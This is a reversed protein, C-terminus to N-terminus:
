RLYPAASAAVSHSGCSHNSPLGIGDEAETHKACATWLAHSGNNGVQYSFTITLGFETASIRQSKIVHPDGAGLLMFKPPAPPTGAPGLNVAFYPYWQKSIETNLASAPVFVNVTATMQCVPGTCTTGNGSYVTTSTERAAVYITSTPSSALPTTATSTQFLEVKYRTVLIPTVQFAYEATTGAPHLVVSSVPAPASHYPFQQAYLRAVEGSTTGKIEGDVQASADKGGDYVVYVDGSIPPSDSKVAILFSGPGHSGTSALIVAAVIGAAALFVVALTVVIPPRVRRRRVLRRIRTAPRRGPQPLGTGLADGAGTRAATETGAAAAAPTGPGPHSPPSHGAHATVRHITETIRDRFEAAFLIPILAPVYPGALERRKNSCTRCDDCIKCNDFHRVIRQRLETTFTETGVAAAQASDLIRALGPCYTRGEQLLILAGFGYAILSQVQTIENSAAKDAIGLREAVQRGRLEQVFRLHYVQQQRETLTAVVLEVLRTAHALRVASGSRSEQDDEQDDLSQGEPLVARRVTAPNAKRVYEQGRRRAIEILWGALKEPRDPGKGAALLTFAAEFAAQGVDQAAEPDPFWRACQRLVVLRYRDAIGEFAATRAQATAASIARRVLEADAPQQQEM